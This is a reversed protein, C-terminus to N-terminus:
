NITMLFYTLLLDENPIKAPCHKPSYINVSDLSFMQLM